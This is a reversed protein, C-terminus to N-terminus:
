QEPMVKSVNHWGVDVMDRFAVTTTTHRAETVIPNRQVSFGEQAFIFSPTFLLVSAVALPSLSISQRTM